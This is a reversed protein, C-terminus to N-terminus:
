GWNIAPVELAPDLVSTVYQLLLLYLGIHGMHYGMNTIEGFHVQAGDKEVGRRGRRGADIKWSSIDDM